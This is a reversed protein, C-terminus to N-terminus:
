AAATCEVVLGPNVSDLAWGERDGVSAVAANGVNPLRLKMLPLLVEAADDETAGESGGGVSSVEAGVVVPGADGPRRGISARTARTSRAGADLTTSAVRSSAPMM